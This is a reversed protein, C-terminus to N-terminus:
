RRSRYSMRAKTSLPLTKFVSWIVGPGHWVLCFLCAPCDNKPVKRTLQINENQNNLSEFVKYLTEQSEAGIFYDDIYRRFISTPNSKSPSKILTMYLVALVPALRFFHSLITSFQALSIMNMSYLHHPRLRSCSSQFPNPLFFSSSMIFDKHRGNDVTVRSTPLPRFSRTFHPPEAFVTLPHTPSPTHAKISDCDM